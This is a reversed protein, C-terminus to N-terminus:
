LQDLFLPLDECSLPLSGVHLGSDYLHDYLFFLLCPCQLLFNYVHLVFVGESAALQLLKYDFHKDAEYALQFDGLSLHIPSVQFKYILCASLNLTLILNL